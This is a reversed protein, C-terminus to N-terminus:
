QYSYYFCLWFWWSSFTEGMMRKLFGTHARWHGYGHNHTWLLMERFLDFTTPGIMRFFKLMQGFLQWNMLAFAVAFYFGKWWPRLHQNTIGRKIKQSSQAWHNSNSKLSNGKKIEELMSKSSWNEIKGKKRGGNARVYSQPATSPILASIAVMHISPPQRSWRGFSYTVSYTDWLCM